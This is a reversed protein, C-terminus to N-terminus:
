LIPGDRWGILLKNLVRYKPPVGLEKAAMTVFEKGTPPNACDPCALDSELRQVRPSSCWAKRPMRLIPLPIRFLIM